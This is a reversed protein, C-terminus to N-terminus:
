ILPWPYHRGPGPFPFIAQTLLQQLRRQFAQWERQTLHQQLEAAWPEATAIEACLRELDATLPAPIPQGAFDWVVTRLKYDTHFCLGHDIGWLHDATDRIIHGGKRDANNTVIDFLGIKQLQTQWQAGDQFNFFTENPDHEVFWQVSGMGRPGERLVTPPVIHWGLAHSVLYACRERLCLTGHPFDWLPQEGQQPKYIANQEEEGHQIVVLFTYNSGWPVLGATQMTGANLIALQEMFFREQQQRQLHM